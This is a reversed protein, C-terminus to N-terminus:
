DNCLSWILAGIWGLVTWGLLVNFAWIAVSNKKKKAFGIFSPIFYVVVIMLTGIFEAM